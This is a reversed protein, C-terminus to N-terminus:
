TTEASRQKDRERRAKKSTAKAVACTGYFGGGNKAKKSV